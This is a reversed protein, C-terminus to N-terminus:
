GEICISVSSSLLVMVKMQVQRASELSPWRSRSSNLHASHTGIYQLLVEHARVGLMCLIDAIEDEHLVCITVPCQPHLSEFPCVTPAVFCIAVFLAVAYSAAPVRKARECEDEDEDKCRRRKTM